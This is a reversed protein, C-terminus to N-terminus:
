SLIFVKPPMKVWQKGTRRFSSQLFAMLAQPNLPHSSFCAEKIEEDSFPISLYIIHDDTLSPLSNLFPDINLITDSDQNGKYLEKFFFLSQILEQDIYWAEKTYRIAKIANISTRSKVINYFFVSTQDRLSDWKSKSRQKWYSTKEDM